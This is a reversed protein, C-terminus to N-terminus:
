ISWILYLGSAVFFGSFLACVFVMRNAIEVFMIGLLILLASFFLNRVSDYDISLNLQSGILAILFCVFVISLMIAGTILGTKFSEANESKM